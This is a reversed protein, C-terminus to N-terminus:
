PCPNPYRLHIADIASIQTQTLESDFANLNERLQNLNTAGIIVSKCFPRSKVFRLAMAALTSDTCLAHYAEVAPVMNVKDRYRQAFGPFSDLRSGHPCQGNRYKGSLFGFALPSYALLGLNEHFVSEALHTDFSRNLLSYANQISVPKPYGQQESLKIFQSIGWPTENSLGFSRIKGETILDALTSLTESIPTGPTYQDAEFHHGGFKPVYRDPWHLQYLDIYDTQLRSLSGEIALRINAATLGSGDRIHKMNGPGTVKTALIVARRDQKKLWNGVIQESAGQTSARGPVPYMEATDIFNVGHNAALDLQAHGEAETNQQGFTMTGLCVSSVRLDSDALQNYQM